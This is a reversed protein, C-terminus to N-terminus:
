PAFPTAHERHRMWNDRYAQALARNGRLFLVNEANRTQASHTFNFSGTIVLADSTGADIVMVKNHASDHAADLFVPVGAAALSPLVSNPVAAAQQADAIVQVDVGRRRARILASALGRHTFLFAQVRVEQRARGIADTIKRDAADGPTFAAEVGPGAGQPELALAAGALAMALLGAALHKM